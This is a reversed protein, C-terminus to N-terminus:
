LASTTSILGFLVLDSLLRLVKFFKIPPLRSIGTAGELVLFRERSDFLRLADKSRRDLINDTLELKWLLECISRKRSFRSSSLV